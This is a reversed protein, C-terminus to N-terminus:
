FEADKKFTRAMKNSIKKKKKDEEEMEIFEV